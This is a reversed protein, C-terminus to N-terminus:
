QNAFRMALYGAGAALGTLMTGWAMDVLTLRAPWDKLTAHNTLDYTGYAFLGVFAGLAAAKVLGGKEVAPLVALVLIGTVYLVYFFAAAVLNPKAALMEGLAPRYFRPAMLSLWISDLVLFASASALWGYVHPM